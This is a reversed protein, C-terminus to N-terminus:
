IEYYIKTKGRKCKYKKIAISSIEELARVHTGGCPVPFFGEIRCVRLPKDRPIEYPLSEAILFVDKPSIEETSVSANSAIVEQVNSAIQALNDDSESIVGNFEVYAEGPFQHGKIAQLESFTKEAVAAVLHGATHYKSNLSRREKNVAMEVACDLDIETGDGAIYHRMEAGVNRVDCVEYVTNATSITGQDAPQGGGQPYFISESLVLYMGRTDNGKDDVCSSFEFLDPNDIYM